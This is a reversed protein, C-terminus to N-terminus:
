SERCVLASPPTVNRTGESELDKVWAKAKALGPSGLVQSQSLLWGWLIWVQGDSHKKVAREGSGPGAPFNTILTDPGNTYESM